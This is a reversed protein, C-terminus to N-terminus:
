FIEFTKSIKVLEHCPVNYINNSFYIHYGVPDLKTSYLNNISMILRSDFIVHLKVM